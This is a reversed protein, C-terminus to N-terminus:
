STIKTEINVLNKIWALEIFSFLKNLQICNLNVNRTTRHIVICSKTKDQKSHVKDQHLTEKIM